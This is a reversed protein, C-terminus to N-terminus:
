VSVADVSKNFAPDGLQLRQAYTFKFAEVMRHYSLDGFDSSSFNYDACFQVIPTMLSPAYSALLKLKSDLINLILSLVAGSAPPAVGMVELGKYKAQTVDRDVITYKEFDQETLISGYDEKLENVADKMFGGSYFSDAGSTAIMELTDAYLPRKLIDGEKLFTGNPAM